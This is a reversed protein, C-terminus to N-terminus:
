AGDACYYGAKASWINGRVSIGPVCPFASTCESGSWVFAEHFQKIYYGGCAQNGTGGDWIGGREPVREKGFASVLAKPFYKFMVAWKYDKAAM